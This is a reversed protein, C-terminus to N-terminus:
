MTLIKLKECYVKTQLYSAYYEQSRDRFETGYVDFITLGRWREKCYTNYTFYYPKVRRLGDGEFYYPAKTPTAPTIAVEPTNPMSEEVPRRGKQKAVM